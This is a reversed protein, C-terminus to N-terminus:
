LGGRQHLQAALFSELERLMQTRTQSRSLWHDDGELKVLKVSKGARALAQAMELSQAPAVVTDDACYMILLPVRITDISDRPSHAQLDALRSGMSEHWYALSDSDSGSHQGVWYQAQPLDSVGNISVACVYLDPTYAVGAMAAYGGYSAGVICVRRADAIGQATLSKVGDTVDDQMLGGWQQRGALRFANGFGTSGRFQPQLVAYGRTALFQAWWDFVPFDRAEPGGHPLVVLPLNNPPADPPLTLYAPIDTGDRAKYTIAKVQGLSAQALEPYEEGIVEAHHTKFDVLYFVAPTSTTSVKVVQRQRDQSESRVRLQKDRFARSLTEFRKQADPDIWRYPTDTGGLVAAVPQRTFGDYIITEVERTADEVVVRPPSGDLPLGWLKSSEAMPGLALIMSGDASPALLALRGHKEQHFIERWGLGSKALVRYVEGNQNWDERAVVNGNRDVVWDDTFPAGEELEKGDGTRTDVEYVNLRWGSDGRQEGVRSGTERRMESAKFDFTSMIVTKPKGTHRALIGAGTAYARYGGGTMLLEKVVGSNVNLALTRFYEYRQTGNKYDPSTVSVGVLLTEDDSWVLYRLKSPSPVRQVRKDKGAVVDFVVVKQEKDSAINWALTNGDPSIAVNDTQPLAGFVEASPPPAAAVGLRVALASVLALM